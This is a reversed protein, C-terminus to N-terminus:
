LESDVYHKKIAQIQKYLTVIDQRVLRGKSLAKAFNLIYTELELSTDVLASRHSDAIMEWEQDSDTGHECLDILESVFNAADNGMNDRVLPVFDYADAVLQDICDGQNYSGFMVYEDNIRIQEM